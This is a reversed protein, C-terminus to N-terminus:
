VKALKVDSIEQSFINASLLTEETFNVHCCQMLNSSTSAGNKRILLNCDYVLASSSLARM